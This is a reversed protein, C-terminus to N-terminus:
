FFGEEVLEAKVRVKRGEQQQQELFLLISPQLLVSASSPVATSRGVSPNARKLPRSNSNQVQAPPLFSPYPVCHVSIGKKIDDYNYVYNNSSGGGGPPDFDTYRFGFTCKLTGVFPERRQQGGNQVVM